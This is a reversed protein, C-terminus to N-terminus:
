SPSQTAAIASKMPLVVSFVTGRHSPDTSSRLQITGGHKEVIQKSVWLGLGTGTVGKTTFFPEFIHQKSGVSIGKGNDAITVRVYGRGNKFSSRASIRLRIKGQQEIADLGNALLNTFVQRLEGAVATLEVNGCYDKEIQARKATTRSKLLEVASDLVANVSTSAPANGERYFGLSQRTIHAVRKLEDDAIKLYSLAAEPLGKMGQVLFLVNTVAGLPNNIEHAITAAMRGVSALKESRLLAQEAQKRETIDMVTGFSKDPMGMPDLAARGRVWIWRVEGDLRRVQTEFDWSGGVQAARIKESVEARHEPLVHNLFMAQSWELGEVPYGFIQAHRSSRSGIGTKLDFEWEGINAVELAMDLRAKSQRLEAEIQKQKSIDTNTGFWRVVKGNEDKVPMVLTLFPRFLGDAGRLPFVMDFPKGSTISAKWRELVKPLTEPDHVSQWGWGEMQTATTGTYEYWRENYWFISGDAHAIWCLQPIADALARFQAQSTLLAEEAQIRATIDRLIVTYLKEGGTQVQSITAEIPFREGNTRLATLVGPSHMSRATIGEEGFRRIHERHAAHFSVPIFRDLTAGLAESAPCLFIASAARNFMVIRQQEDVSIIADMASGIVGQLKAEGIRLAQEARAHDARLRLMRIGFCLDEALAALLAVEAESFADPESSYISFAGFAKNEEILPVVLVSAYGRRTAEERWPLFAPDTLMNRCKSPQGTRIAMGTPGRGRESDDWTVNVTELYGHEFGSSAVPRVTKHEDNEAFGIWMMLHGCDEIVIRCVERLYASEDTARLLAQTSHNRAKLALNLRQLEKAARKQGTIDRAIKSAGILTGSEDCIPSITLSVDIYRGDKTIRVTECTEIREGRLLRSLFSAEEDHLAPPIILTVPHDVIQEASFGFIREASRNWSRVFGILDISYIADASSQVIIALRAQAEAARKSATIDRNSELVRQVGDETAILQKRASVTLERGDKTFHRLEGEWSGQERLIARIEPWPRPHITRLLDHTVHGLAESETYGYLQEAGRNWSEIAGDLRWIIIADYSLKLLDAQRQNAENVRRRRQSLRYRAAVISMFVGMGAFLFLSVADSPNTIAFTHIPQILWYDALAAALATALLGPWLGFLLASLMVAPYFFIFPPLRLGFYHTLGQRLLFAALVVVLALACRLYLRDLVRKEASSM